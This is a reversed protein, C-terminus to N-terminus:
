RCLLPKLHDFYSHKRCYLADIGLAHALMEADFAERERLMLTKNLCAVKTISQNLLTLDHSVIIVTTSAPLQNILEFFCFSTSSDVYSTPEDLILLDPSSILARAILCRQKEGGSLQQFRKNALHEIALQALLRDLRQQATAKTISRDHYGTKVVQKVTIPLLSSQPQQQSVYGIRKKAKQLSGGFVKVVGQQLPILGLLIKILTTKGGGNPGILACKDGRVLRLSVQDLALKHQYRHSVQEIIIANEM